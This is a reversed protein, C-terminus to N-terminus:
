LMDMWLTHKERQFRGSITIRSGFFLLVNCLRSLRSSRGPCSRAAEKYCNRSLRVSTSRCVVQRFTSGDSPYICCENTRSHSDPVPNPNPASTFSTCANLFTLVRLEPPPSSFFNGFFFLFFFALHYVYMSTPPAADTTHMCYPLDVCPSKEPNGSLLSWLPDCDQNILSWLQRNQHGEMSM